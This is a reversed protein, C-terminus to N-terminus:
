SGAALAPREDGGSLEMPAAHYGLTWHGRRIEFFCPSGVLWARVRKAYDGEDPFAYGEYRLLAAIETTTMTTQEVALRQAVVSFAGSATEAPEIALASVKESLAVGTEVAQLLPPGADRAIDRIVERFRGGKDSRWFAYILGVLVLGVLISGERGLKSIVAKSGEIVATGTLGSILFAGNAGTVVQSLQHLDLAVEDTPRDPLGLPLFHKRNDTLLVCPALAVALAATPADNTHLDRVGEVRPDDALREDFEIIRLRPLFVENWLGVAEALAVGRRSAVKPLNREVEELVRDTAFLVVGTVLTYDGSASDILAGTRGQRLAYDVNRLLVDADVVIPM